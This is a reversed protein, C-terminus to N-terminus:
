GFIKKAVIRRSDSLTFFYVVMASLCIFACFLYIKSYGLSHIFVGSVTSGIALGLDCAGNFAATATGRRAESCRSICFVNIQPNYAGVCLGLIAMATYLIYVNQCFAIMLLASVALIYAPYMIYDPGMRDSIRGAVLRSSLLGVAYMTFAFGVNTWGKELGYSTLYVIVPAYSFSMMFSIIVPLIVGKEFGLFTKPLHKKTGTQVNEVSQRHDSNMFLVLIFASGCIVAATVFLHHFQAITEESVIALAAAPGLAMALVNGITYYGMGESLRKPPVLYSAATGSATSFISYGIGHITRFIVLVIVTGAFNHAACAFMSLFAGILM